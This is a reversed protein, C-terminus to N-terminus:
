TGQFRQQSSLGVIRVSPWLLTDGGELYFIRMNILKDQQYELTEDPRQASKENTPQM